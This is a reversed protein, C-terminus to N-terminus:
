KKTVCKYLTTLVCKSIAAESLDSAYCSVSRCAEGAATMMRMMVM